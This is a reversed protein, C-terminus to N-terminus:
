DIETRRGYLDYGDCNEIFIKCYDGAKLPKDSVFYVYRDVQPANKYTRGYFSNKEEDFGDCIVEVNSGIEASNKNLYIEQQLTNAIELRKQKIKYHVQGEFNYSPTGKERSYVFFGANDLEYEKLFACLENFDEENEGPFGVIFTSRISIGEINERLKKILERIQGGNIRRGMKKLIRDSIHQLPIDIYKIVKDNNKIENILEDNVLEPYCYLLRIGNIGNIKSLERILGTLRYEGYLDIGYKTIDQAVLILEKVGGEALAAAEKILDEEKFSRYAGRIYPILCYTCRNDCGDAIMLYAYHSPTSLVRGTIFAGGKCSNVGNFRVGRVAYDIAENIKDYDNTGLFVEAETLSGYIENIYKQPMCGTMIVPKGSENRVNIVTEVAEQRASNLFACTNVIIVDASDIDNVINHGYERIRYLMKETDVRNKDCGLSIVGISYTRKVAQGM